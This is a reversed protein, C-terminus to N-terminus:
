LPLRLGASAAGGPHDRHGLLVSSGAGSAGPRRLEGSEPCGSARGAHCERTENM